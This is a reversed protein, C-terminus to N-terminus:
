AAARTEKIARRVKGKQEQLQKLREPALLHGVDHKEIIAREIIACADDDQERLWAILNRDLTLTYIPRKRNPM